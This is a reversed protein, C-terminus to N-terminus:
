DSNKKLRKRMVQIQEKVIQVEAENISKNGGYRVKKYADLDVQFGLRELWTDLTEYSYRGAGVKEADREFQYMLHRIKNNPAKFLRSFVPNNAPKTTRVSSYSVLENHTSDQDPEFRNRSYRIAMIIVIILVIIGISWYILQEYDAINSSASRDSPPEKPEKDGHKTEFSNMIRDDNSYAPMDPNPFFHGLLMGLKGGIYSPIEMLGFWIKNFIDRFVFLMYTGLALLATFSGLILWLKKGIQHREKKKLNYLHSYINGALLLALLSFAYVVIEVDKIWILLFIALPITVNLYLLERKPMPDKKLFIYRYTLLIPFAITLVLPYGVFFFALMFVPTTIIYWAFSKQYTSYASYLVCIGFALGLYSWYPVWNYANALFPAAILFFIMAEALFHYAINIHVNKTPM